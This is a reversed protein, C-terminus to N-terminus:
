HSMEDSHAPSEGTSSAHSEGGPLGAVQAYWGYAKGSIDHGIEHAEHAPHAAASLNNNELAASLEGLERVLRQADERLEAPWMTVAAVARARQVRGLSGAPLSGAAAGEDIDHLGSNDLIWVATIVHSLNAAQSLQAPSMAPDAISVQPAPTRDNSPGTWEVVSGDGYYQYAKFAVSGNSNPNRASFQFIGMEDSALSGGSWTVATIRGNADKAVERQWGPAPVFRSVVMGEPFEVRVATTPVDKETPVRVTFVEHADRTSERPWVTVHASVVNAFLLVASLALTVLMAARAIPRAIPYTPKFMLFEKKKESTLVDPDFRSLGVPHL